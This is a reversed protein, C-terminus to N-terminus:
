ATFTFVYCLGHAAAHLGDYTDVLAPYVESKYGAGLCLGYMGAKLEYTKPDNYKSFAEEWEQPFLKRFNDNPHFFEDSTAWGITTRINPNNSDMIYVRGDNKNIHASSPIRIECRGNPM